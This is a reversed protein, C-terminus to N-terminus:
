DRTNVTNNTWNFRYNVGLTVMQVNRDHLTFVDGGIVPVTPAVALTRDSLGLFDYEIRWSWNDAFAWEAGGGVLWGSDSNSSSTTVSTGTTINTVTFGNNGIWGGGGKVYFLFRDAAYGVRGALTTVWTNNSTVQFTNGAIVIGGPNNNNGAWDFDAEVGLVFNNIQYNAGVQGGGVFTAGNGQNSIDVGFLTDSVTRNSWGVGVNGGIYFGTWSFPPPTPAPPAKLPLEAAGAALPTLLALSLCLGAYSTKRM